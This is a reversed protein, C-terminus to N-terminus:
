SIFNSSCQCNSKFDELILFTIHQFVIFFFLPLKIEPIWFSCPCYDTFEHALKELRLRIQFFCLFVKQWIIRCNLVVVVAIVVSNRITLLRPRNLYSLIPSNKLKWILLYSNLPTLAQTAWDTLCRGKAPFMIGPDRSPCAGLM